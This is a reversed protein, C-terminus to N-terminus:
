HWHLHTYIKEKLLFVDLATEERIIQMLAPLSAREMEGHDASVLNLGAALAEQRVHYSIDATIFCDAGTELARRWLDQCAGGGLAVQRMIKDADGYFTFNNLGWCEHLSNLLAAVSLPAPLEGAAGLGWAGNQAAALPVPCEIHLLSALSFNVGEPSCDWNTHLSYVAIKQESAAILASGAIDTDTVASVPRFIVPHHTVLLGCGLAAASEVNEPTADLAVAIRSIESASRGFALGPNDWDEAWYKPIRAEIKATVESLKM